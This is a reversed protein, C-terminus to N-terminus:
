TGVLLTGGDAHALEGFRVGDLLRQRRQAAARADLAGHPRAAGLFILRLDVGAVEDRDGLDHAVEVTGVRLRLLGIGLALEVLRRQVAHRALDRRHALEDFESDSFTM